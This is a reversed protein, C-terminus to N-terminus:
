AALPVLLAARVRTPSPLGARQFANTMAELRGYGLASAIEGVHLEPCSLFMSALKLRLVRLADRWRTGPLLVSRQLAEVNRSTQRLSLASTAALWKLSPLVDGRGYATAIARWLVEAGADLPRGGSPCRAILGAAVLAEVLARAPEALPTAPSDLAARAHDSAAAALGSPLALIRPPAPPACARRHHARVEVARYPRGTARFQGDGEYWRDDTVVLAPARVHQGESTDIEGELLFLVLECSRRPSASKGVLRSDYILNRREVAFVRMGQDLAVATRVLARGIAIDGRAFLM